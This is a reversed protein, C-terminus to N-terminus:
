LQGRAARLMLELDDVSAESFQEGGVRGDPGIVFTEPQGTTGYALAAKSGPDFGITWDVDEREVYDRIASETDDRVIGVMAFDPEDEHRDYFEQLAPAEKICPVCWSNWFNVVVTKGALDALALEEGDLTQVTFEPALVDRGAFRGKDVNPDAGSTNMALIIGLGVLVAAVALAIGRVRTV